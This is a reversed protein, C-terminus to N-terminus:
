QKHWTQGGDSTSWTNGTSTNLSGNNEDSFHLGLVNGTLAGSADRVNMLSWTRGNDASYFLLGNDGGAWIHDRVVAVARFKRDPLMNEWTGGYSFSRQLSGDNTIQWQTGTASSRIPAVLQYSATFQGKARQAPVMSNATMDSNVNAAPAAGASRVAMERAADKEEFEDAKRYESPLNASAVQKKNALEDRSTSPAPAAKSLVSYRTQAGPTIPPVLKRDEALSKTAGAVIPAQPPTSEKLDTRPKEMRVKEQLYQHRRVPPAPTENAVKAEAEPKGSSQSTVAPQTVAREVAAEDTMPTRSHKAPAGLFVAIAVVAAAAAVAGWHFASWEWVGRRRVPEPVPQVLPLTTLSVIERCNTCVALHSVVQEREHATLTHESFAALLDADPHESAAPNQM